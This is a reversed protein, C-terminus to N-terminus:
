LFDSLNPPHQVQVIRHKMLFKSNLFYQSNEDNKKEFQDQIM